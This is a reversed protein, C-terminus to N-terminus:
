KSAENMPVVNDEEVIQMDPFHARITDSIYNPTLHAYHKECIRTDSHGLQAAIVPLPVGRQVLTSAHTHRLIHFSIAPRIGARQCADKLRRTQHSRGWQEGDERLFMYEGSSREIVLRSFFRHGQAELTVHRPKGNKSDSVFLTGSDDHFDQVRMNILEGWRCGTLLAAQVLARFDKDCANVLRGCEGLALFRVKPHDVNKYPKVRRWADDSPIKGENYARNLAAKLITLIRNASAKRKRKYDEEKDADNKFAVKGAKARQRPKEEALKKHWEVIERSTLKTVEKKGFIPRLYAEVSYKAREPSRSHNDLYDNYDDLADNVTYNAIGVGLELRSLDKHWKHAKEQAQWFDFITVGDADQIDDAKGLQNFKYGTDDLRARAIWSGGGKKLKRYGIHFGKGISKWHPEKQLKLAQRANRTELKKDKVTRAM